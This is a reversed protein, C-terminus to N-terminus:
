TYSPDVQAELEGRDRREGALEEELGAVRELLARVEGERASVSGGVSDEGGATKEVAPVPSSSYIAKTATDM